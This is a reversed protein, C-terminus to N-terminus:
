TIPYQPSIPPLRPTLHINARDLRRRSLSPTNPYRPVPLPPAALVRPRSLLRIRPQHIGEVAVGQATPKVARTGRWGSALVRHKIPAGVNPCLITRANTIEQVVAAATTASPSRVMVGSKEHEVLFALILQLGQCKIQFLYSFVSWQICAVYVRARPKGQTTPPQDPALAIKPKERRTKRPKPPDSPSQSPTPHAQPSSSTTPSGSGWLDSEILRAPHASLHSDTEPLYSSHSPPLNFNEGMNSIDPRKLPPLPSPRDAFQSRYTPVSPLHLEPPHGGHHRDYSQNYCIPPSLAHRDDYAKRSVGYFHSDSYLEGRHHEPPYTRPTAASSINQVHPHQNPMPPIYYESSRYPMTPTFSQSHNRPRPNPAFM